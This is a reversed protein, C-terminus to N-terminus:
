HTNGHWYIPVTWIIYWEIDTRFQLHRLICIVIKTASKKKFSFLWSVWTVYSCSQLQKVGNLGIRHDVGDSKMFIYNEGCYIHAPQNEYFTMAYSSVNVNTRKPNIVDLIINNSITENNDAIGNESKVLTFNEVGSLRGFLWNM